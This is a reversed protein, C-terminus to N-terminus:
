VRESAWKKIVAPLPEGIPKLDEDSFWARWDFVDMDKLKADYDAMEFVGQQMNIIKDKMVERKRVFGMHYIRIDNVFQFSAHAAISEGDDYTKYGRKSLRIVQPSCPMRSLPVNLEHFPDAWLNIRTCMFAEQGTEVAERIAAYSEEHVIEDAQLLFQYDTTLMEVAMNQFYSLKERGRREEWENDILFQVILKPDIMDCLLERTGDESGADLVAVQDCFELLSNITETICYDYKIADKVFLFGGITKNM